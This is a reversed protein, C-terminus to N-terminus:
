TVGATLGAVVRRQFTVALAILPTTVVVSAAMIRGWPLEYQSAGSMLAIAVPVTRVDETLTFTLAFLFENWAAVFALLGTTVIGPAALPALVRLIVTLTGAGDIRAAEEIEAPLEGMFSALTWVTFPLTFVLYSLALGFRTNYLGLAGLLEFMGALMAVQPVMNMGLLTYLLLMRGRLAVRGLAYGAFTAAALSAGVTMAAVLTSNLISRGFRQETFVAAYNEWAPAGPWYEVEFLATGTELSSVLAWYAPFLTFALFGLAAIHLGGRRWGRASM